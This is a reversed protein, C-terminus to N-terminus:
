QAGTQFGCNSLGMQRMNTRVQGMQSNRDKIETQFPQGHSTKTRTNLSAMLSKSELTETKTFRKQSEAVSDTRENLAGQDTTSTLVTPHICLSM